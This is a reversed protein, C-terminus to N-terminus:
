ERRYIVALLIITIIDVDYFIITIFRVYKPLPLTWPDGHLDADGGGDSGLRLTVENSLEKELPDLRDTNIVVSTNLSNDSLTSSMNSPSHPRELRELFNAPQKFSM